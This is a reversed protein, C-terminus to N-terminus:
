GIRAFSNGKYFDTLALWAARGAMKGGLREECDGVSRWRSLACGASSFAFNAASKDDSDVLSNEFDVDGKPVIFASYGLLTAASSFHHQWTAFHEVQGSCPGRPFTSHSM